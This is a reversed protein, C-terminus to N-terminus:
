IRVKNQKSTNLKVHLKLSVDCELLTKLDRVATEEIRQLTRGGSGHLLRQHSRSFVVLDQYIIVGEKVRRFM